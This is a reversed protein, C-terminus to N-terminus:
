PREGPLAISRGAQDPLPLGAHAARIAALRAMLEPPFPASKPGGMDVHVLMHEGTALLDGGDAHYMCHFLRYRKEDHGLLQTEVRVAEGGSVEQLYMVHTELTYISTNTRARYAADQGAFDMFADTAHSFVLVYYAENMHGNYDLWEPKVTARHLCLPADITM